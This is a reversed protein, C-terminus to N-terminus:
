RRPTRISRIQTCCTGVAGTRRHWRPVDGRRCRRHPARRGSRARHRRLDPGTPGATGRAPQGGPGPDVCGPGLGARRRHDPGTWRSRRSASVNGSAAPSSTRYRGAASSPLGVLDLLEPVTRTEGVEIGHARRPETLVSEISQRPDLSAMPDQFIMQMRRRMRRLDEGELTHVDIGDFSVTGGTPEVLRLVARGLTTKGCGHSVSWASPGAAPVDLDVGDVAKVSGIEVNSCSAPGSRFTSRSTVCSLLVDDAALNPQAATANPRRRVGAGGPGGPSPQLVSPVPRPGRWHPRLRHPDIRNACRPAFACGAGMAPHRDAVGPDSASPHGRPADLRPVSALLGGTYPHRPEAFLECTPRSWWEAETCSM